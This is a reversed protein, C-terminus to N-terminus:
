AKVKNKIHLYKSIIIEILGIIFLILSTYVFKMFLYNTITSINISTISATLILKLIFTLVILLISSLITLIGTLKLAKRKDKIIIFLVFTLALILLYMLYLTM